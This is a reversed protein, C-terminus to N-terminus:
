DQERNWTETWTHEAFELLIARIRVDLLEPTLDPLIHILFLHRPELAIDGDLRVLNAFPRPRPSRM